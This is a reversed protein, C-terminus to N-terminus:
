AALCPDRGISSGGWGRAGWKLEQIVRNRFLQAIKIVDLSVRTDKQYYFKAASIHSTIARNLIAALASAARPHKRLPLAPGQM